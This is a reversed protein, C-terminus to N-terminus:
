VAARAAAKEELYKLYLTYDSDGPSPIGVGADWNYYQQPRGSEAKEATAAPVYVSRGLDPRYQFKGGSGIDPTGGGSSVTVSSGGIGRRRGTREEFQQKRLPNMRDYENVAEQPDSLTEFGEGVPGPIYSGAKIGLGVLGKNLVSGIGKAVYGKTKQASTLPYPTDYQRSYRVKDFYESQIEPDMAAIDEATVPSGDSKTPYGYEDRGIVEGSSEMGSSATKAAGGVGRTKAPAGRYLANRQAATMDGATVESESAPSNIGMMGTGGAVALREQGYRDYPSTYTGAAIRPRGEPLNEIKLIREDEGFPSPPAPINIDPKMMDRLRNDFGVDPVNFTGYGAGSLDSSVPKPSVQSAPRSAPGLSRAMATNIIARDIASQQVSSEPDFSAGSYGMGAPSAPRQPSFGGASIPDGTRTPIGRMIDRIEQEYKSMVAGRRAMDEPTMGPTLPADYTRPQAPTVRPGSVKAPSLPKYVNVPTGVPGVSLSRIGGVQLDTKLAKNSGLTKSASNVAARQRDIYDRNAGLAFVPSSFSAGQGSMPSSPGKYGGTKSSVSPGTRTGSTVSGQGGPGRNGPAQSGSRSGVSGTSSGRSGTAGGGGGGGGGVGTKNGGGTSGKGGGGIGGTSRSPGSNPGSSGGPGRSGGARSSSGISEDPPFSPLGKPGREMNNGNISRLYAMERENLYALHERPRGKGPDYSKPATVKKVM